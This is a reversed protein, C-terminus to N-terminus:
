LKKWLVKSWVIELPVKNIGLYKAGREELQQELEQQQNLFSQEREKPRWWDNSKM